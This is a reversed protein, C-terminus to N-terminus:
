GLWGKIAVTAFAGIAAGAAGTVLGVFWRGVRANFWEDQEAAVSKYGAAMKDHADIVHQREACRREIKAIRANYDDNLDDIKERVERMSASVERRLAEISIQLGKIQEQLMRVAAEDEM